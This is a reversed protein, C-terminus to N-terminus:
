GIRARETVAAKCDGSSKLRDGLYFFENVTEIENCLNEIDATKDMIGRCRLWVFHMALRATVKKTKCMQWSSLKSIKHMVSFQGHSDEWLSWM